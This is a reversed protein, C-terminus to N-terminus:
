CSRASRDLKPFEHGSVSVRARDGPRNRYVAGHLEGADDRVQGSLQVTMATSAAPRHAALVKEIDRAASYLDRGQVDAHVDFVPRINLQSAILPVKARGLAAVNSLLQSEGSAAGSSM